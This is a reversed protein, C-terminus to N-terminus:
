LVSIFPFQFLVVFTHDVFPVEGHPHAGALL